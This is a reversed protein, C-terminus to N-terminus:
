STAGAHSRFTFWRNALYTLVAQLVLAIAGALLVNVGFAEVLLAVMGLSFSFALAYVSAFKSLGLWWSGHHGFVLWRQLWYAEVIGILSAVAQVITYHIVQGLTLQLIVFVGYGFITNVVGVLGYRVLEIDLLHRVRYSFSIGQSATM